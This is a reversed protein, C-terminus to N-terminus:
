IRGANRHTTDKNRGKAFPSSDYGEKTGPSDPPILYLLSSKGAM